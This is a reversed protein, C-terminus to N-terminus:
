KKKLLFSNSLHNYFLFSKSIYGEESVAQANRSLESYKVVEQPPSPLTPPLAFGEVGYGPPPEITQM